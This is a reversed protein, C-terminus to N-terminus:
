LTRPQPSSQLRPDSVVGKRITVVGRTIEDTADLRLEPGDQGVLHLLLKEMNRSWMQSAHVAVQAPLNLEGIITVGNDTVITEGPKTLACNGGGD